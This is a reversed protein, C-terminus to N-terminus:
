GHGHTPVRAPICGARHLIRRPMIHTILRGTASAPRQVRGPAKMTASPLGARRAGKHVVAAGRGCGETCATAKGQERGSHPHPWAYGTVVRGARDSSSQRTRYPKRNGNFRASRFTGASLIAKGDAPCIGDSMEFRDGDGHGNTWNTAQAQFGNQRAPRGVSRSELSGVSYLWIISKGQTSKPTSVMCTGAITGRIRSLRWKCENHTLSRGAPLTVRGHPPLPYEYIYFYFFLWDPCPTGVLGLHWTSRHQPM